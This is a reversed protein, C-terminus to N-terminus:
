LQWRKTLQETMVLAIDNEGGEGGTIVDPLGLLVSMPMNTYTLRGAGDTTAVGDPVSNLVADLRSNRGQDLSKRVRHQLSATSTRQQIVRNWGVAAAGGGAVERLECSDVSPSTAVLHLQEEIDAVPRVVRNVLVAGIALCCAPGVLAFPALHAGATLYDWFRAQSFGLRMSGILNGGAKLPTRYEHVALGNDDVYQVESVDGWRDSTNGLEVAQKGKFADRSHALYEGSESVVACFDARCQVRIEAVVPQLDASKNRLYALAFRESARGLARLAASESRSETAAHAIYIIGIGLWVLAAIGFLLFYATLRRPLRIKLKSAFM